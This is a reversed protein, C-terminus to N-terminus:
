PRGTVLHAWLCLPARLVGAQSRRGREEVCVSARFQNSTLRVCLRLAALLHPPGLHTPVKCLQSLWETAARLSPSSPVSGLDCPLQYPVRKRSRGWAGGWSAPPLLAFLCGSTSLSCVPLPRPRSGTRSAETWRGGSGRPGEFCCRCWCLLLAGHLAGREPRAGRLM